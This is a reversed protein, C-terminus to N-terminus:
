IAPDTTADRMQTVYRIAANVSIWQEAPAEEIRWRSPGIGDYPGGTGPPYKNDFVLKYDQRVLNGNAIPTFRLQSDLEAIVTYQVYADAKNVALSTRKVAFAKAVGIKESKTQAPHVVFMNLSPDSGTLGAGDMQMQIFQSIISEPMENSPGGALAPMFEAQSLLDLDALTKQAKVKVFPDKSRYSAARVYSLAALVSVHPVRPFDK